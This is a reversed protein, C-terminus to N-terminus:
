PYHLETMGTSVRLPRQSGAHKPVQQHRGEDEHQPVRGAAPQGCRCGRVDVPEDLLQAALAELLPLRRAPRQLPDALGGQLGQLLRGVVGVGLDAPPRGPQRGEDQGALVGSLGAPDDLPADLSQTAFCLKGLVLGELILHRPRERTNSWGDGDGARVDLAVGAAVPHGEM